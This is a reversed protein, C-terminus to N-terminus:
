LTDFIDSKKLARSIEEHKPLRLKIRYDREVNMIEDELGAAYL